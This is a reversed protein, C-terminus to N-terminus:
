IGHTTFMAKDDAEPPGPCTDYTKKDLQEKVAATPYVLTSKKEKVNILRLGGNGAYSTAVIWEAGPVLVLDEPAAQDCVYQIGNPGQPICAPAAPQGRPAQGATGAPLAALALLVALATINKM